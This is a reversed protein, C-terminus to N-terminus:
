TSSRRCTAPLNDSFIELDNTSLPERFLIESRRDWRTRRSKMPAVGPKCPISRQDMRVDWRKKLEDVPTLLLRNRVIFGSSRTTAPKRAALGVGKLLAPGNDRRRLHPASLEGHSPARDRWLNVVHRKRFFDDALIMNLDFDPPLSVSAAQYRSRVEADIRLHRGRSRHTRLHAPTHETVSQTIFLDRFQCSEKTWM